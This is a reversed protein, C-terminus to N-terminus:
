SVDLIISGTNHPIYPDPPSTAYGHVVGLTDMAQKRWGQVVADETNRHLIVMAISMAYEITAQRILLPTGYLAVYRDNDSVPFDDTSSFIKGHRVELLVSSEQDLIFADGIRDGYNDESSFIRISTGDGIDPFPATARYVSDVWASSPLVLRKKRKTETDLAAPVAQPLFDMIDDDNCYESM